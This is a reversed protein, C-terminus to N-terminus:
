RRREQSLNFSVIIRDAEKGKAKSRNPDVSHYLWAPFILMRGAVPKYRVKTWCSRPRKTDPIYEAPSMLNQTRPDIFEIRGANTPAQVYYVGSWLCGPHIHARNSSGPPNIISWMTGIKLRYSTHYGLERCMLTAVGDVHQVLGAFTVDKHLKVHSHWSGLEPFNSKRVGTTDREREAYIAEILHANLDESGPVDLSFILTPFHQTVKLGAESLGAVLGRDAAVRNSTERM